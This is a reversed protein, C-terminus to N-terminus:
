TVGFARPQIKFASQRDLETNGCYNDNKFALPFIQNQSCFSSFRAIHKLRLSHRRCHCGSRRSTLQLVLAAAVLVTSSKKQLIREYNTLLNHGSATTFETQFDETKQFLQYMTRCCMLLPLPTIIPMGDGGAGETVCIKGSIISGLFPAAM